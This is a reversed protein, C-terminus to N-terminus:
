PGTNPSAITSASRELMQQLPVFFQQRGDETELTLGTAWINRVRLDPIGPAGSPVRSGVHVVDVTAGAGEVGIVLIALVNPFALALAPYSAESAGPTRYAIAAVRRPVDAATRPATPRPLAAFGREYTAMQQKIAKEVEAPDNPRVRYVRQEIVYSLPVPSARLVLNLGYEFPQDTMKLTVFGAVNNDVQFDKRELSFLMELVHRIPVDRADITVSPSNSDSQHAPPLSALPPVPRPIVPGLDRPSPLRDQSGMAMLPVELSLIRGNEEYRLTLGKEHIRTVLLSPVSNPVYQGPASGYPNVKDGVHVVRDRGWPVEPKDEGNILIAAFRSKVGNGEEYYVAAVRRPVEAVTRPPNANEAVTPQPLPEPAHPARVIRINQETSFEVKWCM